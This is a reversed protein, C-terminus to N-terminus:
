RQALRRRALEVTSPSTESDRWVRRFRCWLVGIGVLWPAGFALALPIAWWSDSQTVSGYSGYGLITSLAHSM